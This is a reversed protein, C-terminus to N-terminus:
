QVTEKAIIKDLREILSKGYSVVSEHLKKMALSDLVEDNSLCGELEVILIQDYISKYPMQEYCSKGQENQLPCCDCFRSSYDSEKLAAICLGCKTSVNGSWEIFTDLDYLVIAEWKKISEECAKVLNM